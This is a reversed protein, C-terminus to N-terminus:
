CGIYARDGTRYADSRQDTVNLLHIQLPPLENVPSPTIVSQSLTFRSVNRGRSRRELNVNTMTCGRGRFRLAGGGAVYKAPAEILTIRDSLGKALSIIKAPGDHGM